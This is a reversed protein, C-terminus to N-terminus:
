PKIGLPCIATKLFIHFLSSFNQSSFQPFLKFDHLPLGGRLGDHTYVTFTRLHTFQISTLQNIFFSCFIIIVVVAELGERIVARTQSVDKARSLSNLLEMMLAIATNFTYRRGLDDTVKKIMEHVQRRLASVANSLQEAKLADFLGFRVPKALGTLNEFNAVWVAEGTIPHIAKLGTDMGLKDMM